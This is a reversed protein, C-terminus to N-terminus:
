SSGGEDTRSGYRAHFNARRLVLGPGYEPEVSVRSDSPSDITLMFDAQMCSPDGTGRSIEGDEGPLEPAPNLAVRTIPLERERRFRGCGYRGPWGQRAGSTMAPFEGRSVPWLLSLAVLTSIDIM